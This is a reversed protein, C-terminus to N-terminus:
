TGPQVIASFSLCRSLLLREKYVNLTGSQLRSIPNVNGYSVEINLNCVEMTEFSGMVCDLTWTPAKHGRQLRQTSAIESRYESNKCPDPVELRPTGIMIPSQM